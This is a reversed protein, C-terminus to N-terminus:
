ETLEKPAEQRCEAYINVLFIVGSEDSNRVIYTIFVTFLKHFYQISTLKAGVSPRDSGLRSSTPSANRSIVTLM